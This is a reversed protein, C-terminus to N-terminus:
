QKVRIRSPWGHRRLSLKGALRAFMERADRLLVRLCPLPDDAAWLATERIGRLSRMWERLTLHKDRHYHFCSALDCDEVIWKRGDAPFSREVPLGTMDLYLARVVDMGNPGTFLRFSAGVRPNVDMVKYQGDRIDYRYGIDLIGRYGVARMFAETIQEVQDNRQCLGLSTAGTYVPSQRLKRATCGFLCAGARNFYGNFMWDTDAGGPIYEQLMLNPEDPDELADYLALLEGADRTIYMPKGTREILKWGYIPKLLIPFRARELYELVDARSQPFSTEATPVGCRQALLHMEKKSCLARALGAPREPFLFSPSLIEAHEDVLLSAADTTPILLARRGLRRGLQQLFDLLRAGDQECIFTQRTYRSHSAPHGRAPDVVYVPVGLRGLSRVIGLGGHRCSMLVVAPTVNDPAM